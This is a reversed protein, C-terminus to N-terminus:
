RKKPVCVCMYAHGAIKMQEKSLNHHFEHMLSQVIVKFCTFIEMDEIFSISLTQFFFLCFLCAFLFGCTVIM